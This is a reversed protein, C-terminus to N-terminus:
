IQENNQLKLMSPHYYYGNDLVCNNSESVEIITKPGKFKMTAYFKISHTGTGYVKYRRSATLIVSDGVRFTKM